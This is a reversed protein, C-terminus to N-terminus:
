HQTSTEAEGRSNDISDQHGEDTDNIERRDKQTPVSPEPVARARQLHDQFHNENETAPPAYDLHPRVLQTLHNLLDIASTSLPNSM